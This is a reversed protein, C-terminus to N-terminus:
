ISRASRQVLKNASKRAADAAGNPETKAPGLM